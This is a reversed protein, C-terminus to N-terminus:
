PRPCRWAMPTSPLTRHGSYCRPVLLPVCVICKANSDQSLMASVVLGYSCWRLVEGDTTGTRSLQARLHDRGSHRQQLLTPLSHVHQSVDRGRRRFVDRLPVALWGYHQFHLVCVCIFSRWSKHATSLLWMLRVLLCATSAASSYQGGPCAGACASTGYAVGVTGYYGAACDSCASTGGPGWRGPSCRACGLGLGLAFQGVPCTSCLGVGRAPSWQGVPCM